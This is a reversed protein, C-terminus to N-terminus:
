DAQSEALRDLWRALGAREAIERLPRPVRVLRLAADKKRAAAEAAILLQLGALDWPGASAVDIRVLATDTFASKLFDKLRPAEALTVPGSLVLAASEAGEHGNSEGLM